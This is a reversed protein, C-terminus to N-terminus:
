TTGRKKESEKTQIKDNEEKVRLEENSKWM